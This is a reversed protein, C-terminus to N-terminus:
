GVDMSGCAHCALLCMCPLYYTDNLVLMSHAIRGTVVQSMHAHLGGGGFVGAVVAPSRTRGHLMLLQCLCQVCSANCSAGCLCCM